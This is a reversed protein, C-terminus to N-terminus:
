FFASKDVNKLSEIMLFLFHLIMRKKMHKEAKEVLFMVLINM